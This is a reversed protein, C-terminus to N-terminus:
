APKHCVICVKNGEPDRVYAGYYNPHYHTRLGPKGEDKGGAAMGAAYAADVASRTDAELGITIGNGVSAAQRDIPRVIWLQPRGGKPGYGVGDPFEMHRVLGLAQTVGDYFAKSKAMDNSGATVHSFMSNDGETSRSCASPNGHSGEVAKQHSVVRAAVEQPTSAEVDLGLQTLEGKLNGDDLVTRSWPPEMRRDAPAATGAKAFYAFWEVVELGPYGLERATPIAKAVALRKSSTTMLLKVRGGRHHQLLSVMGSVAAPMRGDALDGVLAAAGRFPVGKM